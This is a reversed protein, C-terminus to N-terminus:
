GQGATDSSLQLKKAVLYSSQIKKINLNWVSYATVTDINHKDWVKVGAEQMAERVQKKLKSIFSGSVDGFLERIQDNGIEAPYKLYIKLATEADPIRM